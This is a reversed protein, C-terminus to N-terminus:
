RQRFLTTALSFLETAIHAAWGRTLGKPDRRAIVPNPCSSWNGDCVSLARQQILFSVMAPVRPLPRSAGDAAMQARPLSGTRDLYLPGVLVAPEVDAPACRGSAGSSM